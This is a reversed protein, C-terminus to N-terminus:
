QTAIKKGQITSTTASPSTNRNARPSPARHQTRHDSRPSHPRRHPLASLSLEIRASPPRHQPRAEPPHLRLHHLLRPQNRPALATQTQSGSVRVTAIFDHADIASISIATPATPCHRRRLDSSRQHSRREAATHIEVIHVAPQAYNLVYPIETDANYLRLSSLQPGAHTFTTADLTLCTQQKQQPTNLIPASM